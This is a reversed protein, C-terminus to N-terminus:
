FRNSRLHILLLPVNYFPLRQVASTTGHDPEVLWRNSFLSPQQESPSSQVSTRQLDSKYPLLIQCRIIFLKLNVTESGTRHVRSIEKRRWVKTYCSLGVQLKPWSLKRSSDFRFRFVNNWVNTNLMECSIHRSWCLAYPDALFRQLTETNPPLQRVGTAALRNLRAYRRLGWGAARTTWRLHVNEETLANTERRAQSRILCTVPQNQFVDHPNQLTVFQTLKTLINNWINYIM